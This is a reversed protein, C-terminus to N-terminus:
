SQADSTSSYVQQRPTLPRILEEMQATPEISLERKVLARYRRYQSLAAAWNGEATYVRILTRHASERLPEAWVAALAAEVALSFNAVDLLREALAELAHMRLQDWRERELMLWEDFWDPLLEISLATISHQELDQPKCETSQDLLRRALAVHTQIDVSLGSSLNLYTTSAQILERSVQHIRWVTSRLSANARRSTSDPWLAEAVYARMLPRSHLALFALLRRAISPLAAVEEQYLLQFSGSLQLSWSSHGLCPCPERNTVLGEWSVYLFQGGQGGRAM